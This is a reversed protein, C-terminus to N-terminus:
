HHRLPGSHMAFICGHIRLHDPEIGLKRLRVNLSLWTQAQLSSRYRWHGILWPLDRLNAM